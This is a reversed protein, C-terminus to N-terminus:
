AEEWVKIWMGWCSNGSEPPLALIQERELGQSLGLLGELGKQVFDPHNEVLWDFGQKKALDLLNKNWETRADALRTSVPKLAEAIKEEDESWVVPLELKFKGHNSTVYGSEVCQALTERAKKKDLESLIEHEQKPGGALVHVVAFEDETM